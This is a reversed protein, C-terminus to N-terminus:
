YNKQFDGSKWTEFTFAPKEFTEIAGKLPELKFITLGEQLMPLLLLIMIGGFLYQKIKTQKEM